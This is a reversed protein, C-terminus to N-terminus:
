RGAFPGILAALLSIGSLNHDATEPAIEHEEVAAAAAAAIFALRGFGRPLAGAAPEGSLPPHSRFSSM